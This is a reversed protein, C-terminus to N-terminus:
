AEDPAIYNEHRHDVCAPRRTARSGEALTTVLLDAVTFHTATFLGNTM